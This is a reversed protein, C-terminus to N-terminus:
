LNNMNKNMDKIRGEVANIYIIDSVTSFIAMKWGTKKVSKYINEIMPMAM